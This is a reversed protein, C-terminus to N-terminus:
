EKAGEEDKATPKHESHWKIAEKILGVAGAIASAIGIGSVIGAVYCKNGNNM